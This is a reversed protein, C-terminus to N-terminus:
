MLWNSLQNTGIGLAASIGAAWKFTTARFTALETKNAEIKEECDVFRKDIKTDRDTIKTNMGSFRENIVVKLEALSSLVDDLKQDSRGAKYAQQLDNIEFKNDSM